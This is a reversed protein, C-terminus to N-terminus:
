LFPQFQEKGWYIEMGTPPMGIFYAMIDDAVLEAAGAYEEANARAVMELVVAAAPAVTPEPVATAPETLLEAAEQTPSSTPAPQSGSSTCGAVVWLPILLMVCLLKFNTRM